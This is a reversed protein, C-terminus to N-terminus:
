PKVMELHITVTNFVPSSILYTDQGANPYFGISHFAYWASMSGSDDNGPIGDRTTKYRNKLIYRVIEATKDQRNVYNYLSPILFGPENAIQFLGIHYRQDWIKHTFFTDLRQTFIEEGGCKQILSKMDHPVYFSLEFSFTEYTPEGWNGSKLTSFHEKDWYKGEENRPWAFGSFGLSTIRDNWTNQWNSANKYYKNAIDQKGLRDAVTAIAFDCNSYEFTRTM